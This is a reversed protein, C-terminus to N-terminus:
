NSLSARNKLHLGWFYGYKAEICNHIASAIWLPRYAHESPLLMLSAASSKLAGHIHGNRLINRSSVVVFNFSLLVTNM